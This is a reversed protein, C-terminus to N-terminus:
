ATEDQRAWALSHEGRHAGLTSGYATERASLARQHRVPLTATLHPNDLSVKSGIFVAGLNGDQDIIERDNVFDPFQPQEITAYGHGSHRRLASM